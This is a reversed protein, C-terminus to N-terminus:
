HAPGIWVTKGIQHVPVDLVHALAKKLIELDKNNITGSLQRDMIRRESIIVRVGYTDEICKAVQTMPTRDFVLKRDKWSTYVETNVKQKISIRDTSGSFRAMEGPKMTYGARQHLSDGRPTVKVKGEVLVVQTADSRSKVVFRTGLDTITGGETHVTLLRQRKGTPHSIDFYAEGKLWVNINTGNGQISSVKIRTNANLIITSGDGLYLKAMQGYDTQFSEVGNNVRTASLYSRNNSRWAFYYLTALTTVLLLLGAAVRTFTFSYGIHASRELHRQHEYKAVSRQLRRLGETTNPTRVEDTNLKRLLINAENFLVRNSSNGTLWNQWYQNEEMDAEGRIWRVFSDDNLLDELQHYEPM